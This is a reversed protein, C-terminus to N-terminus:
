LEGLVDNLGHGSLLAERVAQAIEHSHDAFSRSDIAQVQITIPPLNAPTARVATRPLDYVGHSVNQISGSRDLGADIAVSLPPIYTRLPEVSQKSEGRVLGILGSAIPSLLTGLGISSTTSSAVNAFGTGFAVAALRSALTPRNSSEISQGPGQTARRLDAIARTLIAVEDALPSRGAGIPIDKEGSDPGVADPAGTRYIEPIGLPRLFGPAPPMARFLQQMIEEKTM